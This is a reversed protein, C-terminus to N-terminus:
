AAHIDLGQSAHIRSLREHRKQLRNRFPFALMARSALAHKLVGSDVQQGHTKWPRILSVAPGSPSPRDSALASRPRVDHRWPRVRRLSEGGCIARHSPRM